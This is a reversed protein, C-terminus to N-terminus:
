NQLLSQKSRKLNNQFLIKTHLGPKRVVRWGGAEAEGADPNYFIPERTKGLRRKGTRVAELNKGEERGRAETGGHMDKPLERGNESM